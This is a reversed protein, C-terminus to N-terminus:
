LPPWRVQMHGSYVPLDISKHSHDTGLQQGLGVSCVTLVNKGAMILLFMMIPAKFFRKAEIIISEAQIIHATVTLVTLKTNVMQEGNGQLHQQISERLTWPDEEGTPLCFLRSCVCATSTSIQQLWNQASQSHPAHVHGRQQGSSFGSM